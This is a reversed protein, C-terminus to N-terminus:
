RLPRYVITYYVRKESLKIFKVYRLLLAIVQLDTFLSMEGALFYYDRLHFFKLFSPLFKKFKQFLEKQERSLKM